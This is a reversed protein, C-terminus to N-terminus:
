VADFNRANGDALLPDVDEGDDLASCREGDRGLRRVPRGQRHGAVQSGTAFVKLTDPSVAPFYGPTRVSRVPAAMSSSVM